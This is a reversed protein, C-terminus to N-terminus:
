RVAGLHQQMEPTSCLEIATTYLLRARVLSEGTDTTFEADGFDNLCRVITAIAYRTQALRRTLAIAHPNLPDLLWDEPHLFM